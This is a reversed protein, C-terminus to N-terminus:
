ITFGRIGLVIHDVRTRILFNIITFLMGPTINIESVVQHRLKSFNNM